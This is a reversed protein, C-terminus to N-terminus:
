LWYVQQRHGNRHTVQVVHTDYERELSMIQWLLPLTGGQLDFRRADACKLVFTETAGPVACAVHAPLLEQLYQRRSKEDVLKARAVEIAAELGGTALRNVLERARFLTRIDQTRIPVQQEQM